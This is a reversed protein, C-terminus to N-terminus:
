RNLWRDMKQIVVEHEVLNVPIFSAEIDENLLAEQAESLIQEERATQMIIESMAEYLHQLLEKNQVNGIMEIMGGKLELTNM